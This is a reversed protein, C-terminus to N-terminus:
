KRAKKSPYRDELEIEIESTVEAEEATMAEVAGETPSEEVSPGEEEVTLGGEEEM